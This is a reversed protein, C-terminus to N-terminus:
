NFNYYKSRFKIIIEQLIELRGYQENKRAYEYGRKILTSRLNHDKLLDLLYDSLTEPDHLNVLLAADGVQDRLGELDSYIVPVGLRFAELPPLNTPGFFTPM